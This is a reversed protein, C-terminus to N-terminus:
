IILLNLGLFVLLMLILFIKQEEFSMEKKVQWFLWDKLHAPKKFYDQWEDKLLHLNIGAVLGSTFLSGSSTFIYFTFVLFIVQFLASHFILRTHTNHYRELLLILGKPDKKQWLMKAMQSDQEEPHTYFWYISHDIDLLFTGFLAGLWLLILDFKLYWRFLSIVILWILSVLLHGTIEKRLM